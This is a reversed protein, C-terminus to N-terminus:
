YGEVIGEIKVFADGDTVAGGRLIAADGKTLRRRRGDEDERHDAKAETM